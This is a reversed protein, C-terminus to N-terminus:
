TVLKKNFRGLSLWTKLINVTV